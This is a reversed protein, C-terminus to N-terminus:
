KKQAKLRQKENKYLAKRKNKERKLANKDRSYTQEIRKIDQEYEKELRDIKAEIEDHLADYEYYDGKYKQQNYNSWKLYQEEYLIARIDDEIEQSLARKKMGKEYGSLSRDKGIAAYERGIKKKRAVLQEKQKASLRYEEGRDLLDSIDNNNQNPENVHQAQITTVLLCAVLVIYKKM